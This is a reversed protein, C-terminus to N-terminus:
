QDACLQSALRDGNISWLDILSGKTTELVTVIEGTFPHINVATIGLNVLNPEPPGMPRKRINNPIRPSETSVEASSNEASSNHASLTNILSLEDVSIPTEKNPVVVPEESHLPRLQRIYRAHNSDWMIVTGDRSGSLVLSWDSSVKLSTVAGDHGNLEAILAINDSKLRNARFILTLAPLENL